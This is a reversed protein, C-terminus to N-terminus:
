GQRDRAPPLETTFSSLNPNPAPEKDAAEPPTADPSTGQLLQSAAHAIEEQNVSEISGLEAAKQRAKEILPPEAAQRVHHTQHRYLALGVPSRWGQTLADRRQVALLETARRTDGVDIALAVWGSLLAHPVLAWGSELAKGAVQMMWQRAKHQQGTASLAMVRAVEQSWREVSPRHEAESFPFASLVEDFRGAMALAIALEGGAFSECEHRVSSYRDIANELHGDLMDLGALITNLFAPVYPVDGALEISHELDRRSAGSDEFIVRLGRFGYALAVLSPRGHQELDIADQAADRMADFEARTMHAFSAWAALDARIALPLDTDRGQISGLWRIAEDMEHTDTWTTLNLMVLEAADVVDDRTWSWELAARVNDLDDHGKIGGLDLPGTTPDAYQSLHDRYWDRHRNRFTEVEGSEFLRSQAYLRVSELLRYRGGVGTLESIVLSKNVLSAIVDVPNPVDCIGEVAALTFGGSFVALRRLLRQETEDLLDWSWAMTAELTQHRQLSGRRRGALLHFRDDLRGAIEAPAMHAVRSAALEIALPIGDLRQCIEVIAQRSADVPDFNARVASARDLFLQVADGGDDEVGLSSVLYAHEAPIELTERSTALISVDPCEATVREVLHAAGDILHECNDLIVLVKRTGLYRLATDLDVMGGPGAPVPIQVARILAGAILDPEGVSTLDVFFVGDPYYDLRRVAM